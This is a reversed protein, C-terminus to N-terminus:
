QFSEYDYFNLTIICTSIVHVSLLRHAFIIIGEIVIVPQLVGMKEAEKGVSQVDAILRDFDVSSV